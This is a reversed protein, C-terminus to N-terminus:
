GGLAEAYTDEILPRIADDLREGAKTWLGRAAIGPHWANNSYLGSFLLAPPRGDRGQRGAKPYIDHAKAGFEMIAWGGVSFPTFTVEARDGSAEVRTKSTLRRGMMRPAGKAIAAKGKKAIDRGVTRNATKYSRALDSAITDFSTGVSRARFEM